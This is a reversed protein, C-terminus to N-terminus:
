SGKVKFIMVGCHEKYDSKEFWFDKAKRLAVSILSQRSITTLEGNLEATEVKGRKNVCIDIAVEGDEESIILMSPEELVKRKGLSNGYITVTLDEDVVIENPTDDAPPMDDAPKDEVIDTPEDETESSEDVEEDEKTQGNDSENGKIDIEVKKNTTELTGQKNVEGLGGQDTKTKDKKSPRTSGCVKRSKSECKTSGMDAGDAWFDCAKLLQGKDQYIDGIFEYVQPDTLIGGTASILTTLAADTNDLKYDTKGLLVLVNDNIGRYGIYELVDMKAGKYAAMAYKAEARMMLADEYDADEKLIASFAKIADEYRETEMLYKAKVYKFGLEEEVGQSKAVLTMLVIGVFLLIIRKMTTTM